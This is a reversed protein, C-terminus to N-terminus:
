GLQFQSLWIMQIKQSWINRESKRWYLILLSYTDRKEHVWFNVKSTRATQNGGQIWKQVYLYLWFTSWMQINLYLISKPQYTQLSNGKMYKEGTKEKGEETL